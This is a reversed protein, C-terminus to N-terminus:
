KVMLLDLKLRLPQIIHGKAKELEIKAADYTAQPSIGRLGVSTGSYAPFTVISVDYLNVDLIERLDLKNSDTSWVQKQVTFAFSMQDVNGQRMNEIIDRAVQTKPPKIVTRLGKEDEELTLTGAKTRGIISSSEHDILARVDQKENIARKFAGRRVVERFMGMITTESDFIAAYGSITPLDDGEERAELKVDELKFERYEKEM